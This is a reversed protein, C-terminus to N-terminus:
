RGSEMAPGIQGPFIVQHYAIFIVDRQCMNCFAFLECTQSHRLKNKYKWKFSRTQYFAGFKVNCSNGIGGGDFNM